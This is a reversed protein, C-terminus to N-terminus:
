RDSQRAMTTSRWISVLGVAPGWHRNTAGTAAAPDTDGVTAATTAPATM